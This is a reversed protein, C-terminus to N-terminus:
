DSRSTMFARASEIDSQVAADLAPERQEFDRLMQQVGAIDEAEAAMRTSSPLVYDVTTFVLMTKKMEAELLGRESMARKILAIVRQAPNASDEAIYARLTDDVEQDLVAQELLYAELSGEPFRADGPAKLLRLSQTKMLGFLAKGTRIELRAAGSRHVAYLAAKIAASMLKDASVKVGSSLVEEKAALMGGEPAFRDGFLVVLESPAFAANSFAESL